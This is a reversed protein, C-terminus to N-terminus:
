LQDSGGRCGRGPVGRGGDGGSGRRLFAGARKSDPALILPRDSDGDTSVFADIQGVENPWKRCRRSASMTSRKPISRSLSKAEAAPCSRAGLDELIRVLIDRGVASHQYVAIRMGSLASAGFFAWYRELWEREGAIDVTQLERHGDRFMGRENFPSDAFATSYLRQRMEDVARGIPEEHEKLLEGASTNLKYGNLDFPIHSGTVM